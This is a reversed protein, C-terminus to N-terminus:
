VGLQEKNTNSHIVFNFGKITQHKLIAALADTLNSLYDTVNSEVSRKSTPKYNFAVGSLGGGFPLKTMEDEIEGYEYDITVKVNVKM